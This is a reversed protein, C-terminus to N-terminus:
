QCSEMGERGNHPIIFIDPPRKKDNALSGLSVGRAADFAERDVYTQGNCRISGDPLLMAMVPMPWDTKGAERELADIRKELGNM